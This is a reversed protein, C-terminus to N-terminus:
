RPAADFRIQAVDASRVNLRISTGPNVLYQLRYDVTGDQQPQFYQSPMNRVDLSASTILSSVAPPYYIRLVRRDGVAYPFIMRSLQEDHLLNGLREELEDHPVELGPLQVTLKTHPSGAERMVVDMSYRPGTRQDPPIVAIGQENLRRIDEKTPVWVVARAKETYREIQEVSPDAVERWVSIQPEKPILQHLKTQFIDPTAM